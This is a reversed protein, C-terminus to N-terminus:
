AKMRPDIYFNYLQAHGRIGTSDFVFRVPQWGPLTGPHINFPDSATWGAGNGQIYGSRQLKSSSSADAYYVGVAVKGAATTEIMTRATQYDSDVCVRPSVALAGSPLDLVSGTQGDALQTTSINAGATLTWGRGSFNDPTEGPAMTYWNTDNWSLFPQSLQPSSCGAAAISPSSSSTDAIAPSAVIATLLVALTATLTLSRCTFLRKTM